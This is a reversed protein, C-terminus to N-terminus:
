SRTLHGVAPKKFPVICWPQCGYASDAWLWENPGFFQDPSNALRSNQFATADHLSGPVGIVYDVIWLNHPYIVVQFVARYTIQFYSLNWKGPKFSFLKIKSWFIRWWALWAKSITQITNWWCMLFWREVSHMDKGTCIKSGAKQTWPDDPWRLDFHIFDHHHYQIGMMVLKYCNHVTGVSVGAWERMDQSIAANGYHGVANLFIALQTCVPLQPNNSNNHFVPNNEILQVIHTFVPPSVRLKHQFLEPNHIQWEDLLALQPIQISPPHSQLVHAQKVEDELAEVMGHCALLGIM